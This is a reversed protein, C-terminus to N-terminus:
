LGCRFFVVVSFVIQVSKHTDHSALWLPGTSVMLCLFPCFHIDFTNKQQLTWRLPTGFCLTAVFYHPSIVRKMIMRSSCLNCHPPLFFCYCSFFFFFTQPPLSRPRDSRYLKRPLTWSKRPFSDCVGLLTTPGFLHVCACVCMSMCAHVCKYSCDYVCTCVYVLMGMYALVSMCVDARVCISGNVCKYLRVCVPVCLCVSM